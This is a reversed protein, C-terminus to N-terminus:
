PATHTHPQLASHAAATRHTCTPRRRVEAAMREREAQREAQREAREAEAAEKAQAEGADAAARTAPDPPPAGVWAVQESLTAHPQLQAVAISETPLLLEKSYRPFASGAKAIAAPLETMEDTIVKRHILGVVARHETSLAQMIEQEFNQTLTTLVGNTLVAPVEGFGKDEVYRVGAMTAEDYDTLKGSAIQTFVEAPDANKRLSSPVSSRFASELHHEALEDLGGGFFASTASQRAEQVSNLFRAAAGTGGKRKLYIFLKTMVFGLRVSEDDDSSAAKAEGSAVAGGGVTGAGARAAAATAAEEMEAAVPDAAWADDEYVASLDRLRSSAAANAAPPLYTSTRRTQLSSSSAGPALVVGFRVPAGNQYVGLM